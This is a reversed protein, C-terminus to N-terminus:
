TGAARASSVAPACFSNLNGMHKLWFFFVFVFLVEVMMRSVWADPVAGGVPDTKM